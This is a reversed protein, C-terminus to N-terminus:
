LTENKSIRERYSLTLHHIDISHGRYNALLRGESKVVNWPVGFLKVASFAQKVAEESPKWDIKECGWYSRAAFRVIDTKYIRENAEKASNAYFLLLLVIVCTIIFVVISMYLM